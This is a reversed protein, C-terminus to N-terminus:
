EESKARLSEARRAKRAAEEAVRAEKKEEYKDWLFKGGAVVAVTILSGGIGGQIRGESRGEGRGQHYGHGWAANGM